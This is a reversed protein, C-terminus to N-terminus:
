KQSLLWLFAAGLGLWVLGESKAQKQAQEFVNAKLWGFAEEPNNHASLYKRDQIFGPLTMSPQLVVPILTKKEGTAIGIEQPVWESARSNESWLLIFLNCSKIATIIEAHLLQGPTVSYEAVFVEEESSQLMSKLHQVIEIDKTSYSIFVKFAM